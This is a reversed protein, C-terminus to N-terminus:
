FKVALRILTVDNYNIKIKKNKSMLCIESDSFSILDGYHEQDYTKVFVYSGIYDSIEEYALEKEIGRSSVELSYDEEIPDEKDLFANIKETLLSIDDITIAEKRDAIIRLLNTGNEKEYSFAFLSYGNEKVILSIKEKLVDLNM